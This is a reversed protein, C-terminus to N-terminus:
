NNHDSFYRHVLLDFPLTLFDQQFTQAAILDVEISGPLPSPASPLRTLVLNDWTNGQVFRLGKESNVTVVSILVSLGSQPPSPAEPMLMDGFTFDAKSGQQRYTCRHCAPPTLFGKEYAHMYAGDTGQLVQEGKSEFYAVSVAQTLTSFRKDRFVFDLIRDHYKAELWKLYAGFIKPSPMGQCPFDATFLNAHDGGMYGYLGAVQCPTGVFLVPSWSQLNLKVDRYIMRIQSQVYKAKRVRNMIEERNAKQHILLMDLNYGAGYVFGYRDFIKEAMASFIGGATSQLRVGEDRHMASFYRTHELRELPQATIRPCARECSLCKSCLATDVKPSFFGATDEVM